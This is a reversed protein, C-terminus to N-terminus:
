NSQGLTVGNVGTIVGDDTVDAEVGWAGLLSEEANHAQVADVRVEVYFSEGNYAYENVITGKIGSEETTVYEYVKNNITVSTLFQAAAGSSLPSTYYYIKGEETEETYDEIWGDAIGLEIMKPDLTTNKTISTTTIENGNADTESVDDTTIWSKRLLVRVYEDYSGTNVVQVLEDYKQGIHFDEATLNPFTLTDEGSVSVYNEGQYEQLDVTLTSTSFDVSQKDTQYTMAARTAGVGSGLVLVLGAAFVILPRKINKRM